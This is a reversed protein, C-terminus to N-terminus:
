RDRAETRLWEIFARLPPEEVMDPLALAYHKWNTKIERNKYDFGM